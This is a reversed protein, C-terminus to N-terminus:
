PEGSRVCAPWRIQKSQLKLGRVAKTPSDVNKEKTKKKEASRYFAKVMEPGPCSHWMRLM